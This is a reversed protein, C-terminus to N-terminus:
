LIYRLRYYTPAKNIKKKKVIELIVYREKKGGGWVSGGRLCAGVAETDKDM